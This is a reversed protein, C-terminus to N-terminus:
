DYKRKKFWRDYRADPALSFGISCRLYNDEILGNNLTGLKGFEFGLNIRSLSRSSILPISIGFNMGYNTLQEDNIKIFSNGYKFGLSYTSKQLANKNKSSFDLSPTIRGGFSLETMQALSQSNDVMVDFNEQYLDWNYISYQVGLSWVNKDQKNRGINAGISFKDPMSVTGLEDQFSELTDKPIEQVSFNYIFSYAFYDRKANVSSGFTQAAGFQWYWKDNEAKGTIEQYYHLGADFSFGSLSMRNQVRSNYYSGDQFIVSNNRDITGFLYSSNIGLSFRTTDGRNVFDHGIGFLIRNISGDGTYNYNVTDTGLLETSTINFGTTSFPMIGLTIGTKKSIPLGILMNNLGSNSGSSLNEVGNLKSKYSSFKATIGLDFLPNNKKLASYTAPNSVNIYSYDSFSVGIGGMSTYHSTSLPTLEGLGFRTYPSTNLDQGKYVFGLMLVFFLLGLRHFM